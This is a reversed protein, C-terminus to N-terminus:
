RLGFRYGEHRLLWRKIALPGGGTANMFGGLAGGSAVVRHCPIILAVPNAGCAGGVARAASRVLRAVEAYTRSEGPPISAIAQWVGRRFPTGRPDVPVSFRFEADDLYREIQRAAEEAVPDRPPSAPTGAPLYAVAVVHGAETRIGVPAFPTELVADFGPL